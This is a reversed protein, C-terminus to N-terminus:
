VVAGAPEARCRALVAHLGGSEAVPGPRLHERPQDTRTHVWGGSADTGPLSASVESPWVESGRYTDTDDRLAVTLVQLSRKQLRRQVDLPANVHGDRGDTKSAPRAPLQDHGDLGSPLPRHQARHHDAQRRHQLRPDRRPGSPSEDPASTMACGRRRSTTANITERCDIMLALSAPDVLQRRAIRRPLARRRPTALYSRGDMGRFPVTRHAGRVRTPNPGGLRAGRPSLGPGAPGPTESPRGWGTPYGSRMRLLM